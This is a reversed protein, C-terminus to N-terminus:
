APWRVRRLTANPVVRQLATQPTVLTLSGFAGVWVAAVLAVMLSRADFRTFFGVTAALQGVALSVLRGARLYRFNRIKLAESM